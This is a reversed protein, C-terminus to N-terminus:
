SKCSFAEKQKAAYLIFMVHEGFCQIINLLGAYVWSRNLYYSYVEQSDQYYKLWDDKKLSTFFGTDGQTHVHLVLIIWRVERREWFSGACGHPGWIDKQLVSSPMKESNCLFINVSYDCSPLLKPSKQLCKSMHMQKSCPIELKLPLYLLWLLTLLKETTALYHQRIM